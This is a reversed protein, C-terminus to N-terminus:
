FGERFYNHAGDGTFWLYTSGLEREITEGNHESEWRTLVDISLEYLEDTVPNYPSYGYFQGSAACQSIPTGGWADVRNLVCWMTQAQEYESCGRAEGWAMQALAIADDETWIHNTEDEIKLKEEVIAIEESPEPSPTAVPLMTLKPIPIAPPSTKAEASAVCNMRLVLIAVLTLALIALCIMQIIEKKSLKM